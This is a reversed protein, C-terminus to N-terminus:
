QLILRNNSFLIQNFLSTRNEKEGELMIQTYLVKLLNIKILNLKPQM